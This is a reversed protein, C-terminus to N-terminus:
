AKAGEAPAADNDQVKRVPLALRVETGEGPASRIEAEGGHRAMRGIISGRVGHRTEEVSGLDFGKGRDRIFVNIEEPEVEAYVSITDVGAHRAANVVAERTARILAGIAESVPRDGVVVVEVAVPYADEVEGAIEELAAAFRESASWAPKYLWNRLTREQGRALQLVSKPDAANRQILALTHLVQDHVMAALEARETERIRAEREARLQGFMRWLVPAVVLGVGALAVISFVLSNLLSTLGAGPIPAIVATIGVVGVAVLIGGGILRLLYGPRDSDGVMGTLWSRKTVAMELRARRQPDAQHWIVGAGLAVLAVLWGIASQVGSLGVLQQVLLVGGGIALFPLASQWDRGRKARGPEVPLVAWFVAYMVAGIGNFGLLVCFAIRIALVPLGVHTAIGAAVGAVVRRQPDRYLRGGPRTPQLAMIEM